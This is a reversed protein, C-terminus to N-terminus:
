MYIEIKKMCIDNGIKRCIFKLADNQDMLCFCFAGLSESNRTSLIYQCQNLSKDNYTVSGFKRKHSYRNMRGKRACVNVQVLTLFSYIYTMLEKHDTLKIADNVRLPILWTWIDSVFFFSSSQWIRQLFKHYFNKYWQGLCMNYKQKIVTTNLM